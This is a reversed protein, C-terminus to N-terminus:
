FLEKVLPLLRMISLMRIAQDVRPRRKESLFPRLATLLRTSDNEENMRGLLPAFRMIMGMTDPDPMQLGALLNGGTNTSVSPQPKPQPPPTDQSLGLMGGLARIQDMASPDSLISNLKESLDDM